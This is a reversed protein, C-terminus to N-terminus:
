FPTRHVSDCLHLPGLTKVVLFPLWVIKMTIHFHDDFPLVGQYGVSQPM